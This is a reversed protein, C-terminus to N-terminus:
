MSTCTPAILTCVWEVQTKQKQPDSWKKCIKFSFLFQVQKWEDYVAM